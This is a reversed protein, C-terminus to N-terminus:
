GHLSGCLFYILMYALSELDDCRGPELGLHNNISAFAPTGTLHQGQHFPIHFKTTTNWYRKAIGFNIIYAIQRLSDVLVNQLKVDGHVYNHSHIYMLCSLLQDGLNVITQLSFKHNCALFLDYLSPGLLDLALAHYISERGFWLAHPIGVGGKLNSSFTTNM